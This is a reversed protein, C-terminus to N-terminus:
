SDIEPGGGSENVTSALDSGLGHRQLDGGGGRDSEPGSTRSINRAAVAQSSLFM